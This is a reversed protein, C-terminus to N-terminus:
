LRYSKKACKKELTSNDFSNVTMPRSSKPVFLSSSIQQITSSLRLKKRHPLLPVGGTANPDEIVEQPSEYDRPPKVAVGTSGTHSRVRSADPMIVTGDVAKLRTGRRAAVVGKGDKAWRERAKIVLRGLWPAVEPNVPSEQLNTYVQNILMDTFVKEPKVKSMMPPTPRVNINSPVYQYVVPRPPPVTKAVSSLDNFRTGAVDSNPEYTDWYDHDYRNLQQNLARVNDVTLKAGEPQTNDFYLRASTNDDADDFNDEDDEEEDGSEDSGFYPQENSYNENDVYQHDISRDDPDREFYSKRHEEVYKEMPTYAPADEENELQQQTEHLRQQLEQTSQTLITSAQISSHLEPLRDRTDQQATALMNLNIPGPVQMVDYDISQPDPPISIFSGDMDLSAERVASFTNSLSDANPDYGVNNINKTTVEYPQGSVPIRPRTDEPHYVLKIGRRTVYEKRTSQNLSLTWHATNHIESQNSQVSQGTISMSQDLSTQSVSNELLGASAMTRFMSRSSSAMGTTHPRGPSGGLSSPFPNTRNHHTHPIDSVYSDTALNYQIGKSDSSSGALLDPGSAGWYSGYGEVGLLGLDHLHYPDDARQDYSNIDESLLSDEPMYAFKGYMAINTPDPTIFPPLKGSQIASATEADVTKGGDMNQLPSYAIMSAVEYDHKMDEDEDSFQDWSQIMDAVFSKEDSQLSPISVLDLRHHVMRRRVEEQVERMTKVVMDCLITQRDTERMKAVIQQQEKEM